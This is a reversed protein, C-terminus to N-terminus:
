RRRRRRTRGEARSTRLNAENKMLGANRNAQQLGILTYRDRKEKNCPPCLLTLNDYADTGGQSRPNIHDVELVRPDFTYDAGCGQCFPGIDTLLKSHQTRPPPYRGHGTPMRLVLAATEGGDTRRPPATAYTIEQRPNVLLQRNLQMRRIVQEYAGNWIDVGAWQRGLREAAIPTTACGCFPDLVLDGPNSSAEIIREYLPLPKQTPYGTDENGLTENIDDWLTNRIRGTKPRIKRYLAEDAIVLDGAADLENM